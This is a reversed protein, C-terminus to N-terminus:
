CEEMKENCDGCIIHVTKTARVTTGCTPCQYKRTSSPKKPRNIVPKVPEVPSNPDTPEVPAVFGKERVTFGEYKVKKFFEVLEESPQTISYGISPDHTIILGVSEAKEKFHKNHYRNGRSCDKINNMLHFLHVMEHLLTAGIREPARNTLDFNINIEYQSIEENDKNVWKKYTTIWGYAGRSPQLTILPRELENNFYKKNLADFLKELSKSETSLEMPKNTTNKNEKM